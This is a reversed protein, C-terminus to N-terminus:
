KTGACLLGRLDYIRIAGNDFVREVGPVEDFKTLAIRAPPSTRIGLLYEGNDIYVGVHPLSTALRQDAILFDLRAQCAISADTPTATQLLLTSVSGEQIGDGLSTVVHQKGYVAALLGNVRDSYSRSNPPLNQGEWRAAQLALQDVSRNDASVLYHGPGHLWDPGSGIITGGIFCITLGLVFLWAHRAVTFRSTRAHRHFPIDRFWWIAVLYGLGVFVFGSARDSVEATASTLHGAPIMPYIAAISFLAMAAASLLRHKIFALWLAPILTSIILLVSAISVIAQWIPNHDGASDTFMRHSSKGSALNAINALSNQLIESIYPLIVSRALWTWAVVILLSIIALPLLESVPRRAIKSFILWAWLLIVLALSTLHHTAAVALVVAVTPALSIISGTKRRTAFIYICFFCLPLAVSQYSFQSNFFIYQPNTAYILTALCGVATSNSIRQIIRILALTMVVRVVLLIILGASHLSLGTLHHVASTAIQMGPYHAVAPLVSNPTFLHGSHNISLLVRYNILEDHYAFQSPYLIVRTALLALSMYLTFWIRAKDSLRRSMVLAASPTFILCLTAYWMLSSPNGTIRGEYGIWAQGLVGLAVIVLAPGTWRTYPKTQASPRTNGASQDPANVTGPTPQPESTEPGRKLRDSSQREALDILQAVGPHPKARAPAHDGHGPIWASRSSVPETV